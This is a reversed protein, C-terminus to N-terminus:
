IAGVASPFDGTAAREIRVRDFAEPNFQRSHRWPGRKRLIPKAFAGRWGANVAAHAQAGAASGPVTPPALGEREAAYCNMSCRPELPIGTHRLHSLCQDRLPTTVKTPTIKTTKQKMAM